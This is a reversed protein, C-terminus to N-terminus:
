GELFATYKPPQLVAPASLLLRFPSHPMLSLSCSHMFPLASTCPQCQHVISQLDLRLSPPIFAPLTRGRGTASDCASGMSFPCAHMVLLCHSSSHEGIYLHDGGGGVWASPLTSGDCQTAQAPTTADVILGVLFAIDWRATWVTWM